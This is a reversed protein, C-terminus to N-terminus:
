GSVGSVGLEAAKRDALAQAGAAALRELDVTAARVRDAEASGLDAAIRARGAPTLGLDARLSRARTEARHLESLVSAVRKSESRRVVRTKSETTESEAGTLLEGAAAVVDDQRALWQRLLRVVAEAWAWAELAPGYSEDSLYPPWSASARQQALIEGALPQIM